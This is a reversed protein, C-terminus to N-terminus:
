AVVHRDIVEAEESCEVVYPTIRRPSILVPSHKRSLTFVPKGNRLGSKKSSKSQHAECPKTRDPRLQCIDTTTVEQRATSSANTEPQCLGVWDVESNVIAEALM